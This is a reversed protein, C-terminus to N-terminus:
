LVIILRGEESTNKWKPKEGWDLVPLKLQRFTDVPEYLDSARYRTKKKNPGENEGEKMFANTLTLRSVEAESLDDKVSVLYGILDPISWDGTKIM